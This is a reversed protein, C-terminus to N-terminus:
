EKVEDRCSVFGWDPLSDVDVGLKKLCQLDEKANSIDDEHRMIEMKLFIALARREADSLDSANM